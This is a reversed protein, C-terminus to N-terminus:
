SKVRMRKSAKAPLASPVSPTAHVRRQAPLKFTWRARFRIQRHTAPVVSRVTRVRTVRFAQKTSRAYPSSTAKMLLCVPQLAIRHPVRYPCKYVATWAQVIRMQAASKRVSVPLNITHILFVSGAPAILVVDAATETNDTAGISLVWISQRRRATPWRRVCIALRHGCIPEPAMADNM